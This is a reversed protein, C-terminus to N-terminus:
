IGMMEYRADAIWKKVRDVSVTIGRAPFDFNSVRFVDRRNWDEPCGWQYFRVDHAACFELIEDDNM